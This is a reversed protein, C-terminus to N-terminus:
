YEALEDFWSQLTESTVQVCKDDESESPYFLHYMEFDETQENVAKDIAQKLYPLRDEFRMKVIKGNVRWTDPNFRIFCIRDVGETHLGSQGHQLAKGFECPLEYKEHNHEDTEVIAMVRKEILITDPQKTDGCQRFPAYTGIPYVNEYHQALYKNVKM